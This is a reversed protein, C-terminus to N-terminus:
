LGYESSLCVRHIEERHWDKPPVEFSYSLGKPSKKEWKFMGMAENESWHLWKSATVSPLHSLMHRGPASANEFPEAPLQTPAPQLSSSLPQSPPPVDSSM